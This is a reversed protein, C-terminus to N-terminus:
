LKLFYRIVLKDPPSINEPLEKLDFFRIDTAESSDFKLKGIYDRCVFATLVNYVEDGHPYQYYFDQGSFTTLLELNNAILGTEELMERLAVEELNEGLEMSGGALGWCKNDKRLQMLLQNEKNFILVCAGVMILPASGIKKRLNMIYSM